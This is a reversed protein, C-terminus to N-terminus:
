KRGFRYKDHSHLKTHCEKCVVILNQKDLYLAAQKHVPVIHHVILTGNRYFDKSMKYECFQCCYNDRRLIISKLEAWQKSFMTKYSSNWLGNVIKEEHSKEGNNYFWGKGCKFYLDCKYNKCVLGEHRKYLVLDCVPCRKNVM